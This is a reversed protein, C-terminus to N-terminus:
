NICHDPFIGRKFHHIKELFQHMPIAGLVLAHVELDMSTALRCGADLVKVQM